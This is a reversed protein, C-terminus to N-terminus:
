AVNLDLQGIHFFVDDDDAEAQAAERRPRAVIRVDIGDIMLAHFPRGNADGRWPLQAFPMRHHQLDFPVFRYSRQIAFAGGKTVRDDAPVFVADHQDCPGLPTEAMQANPLSQRIRLPRLVLFHQRDCALCLLLSGPPLHLLIQRGTGKRRAFRRQRDATPACSSANRPSAKRTPTVMTLACFGEDKRILRIPADGQQWRRTEFAAPAPATDPAPIRHMTFDGEQGQGRVRGQFHDPDIMTVTETPWGNWALVLIVHDHSATLTWHGTSDKNSFTGDAAIQINGTWDAHTCAWIGVVSWPTAPPPPVAPPNVDVAILADALSEL